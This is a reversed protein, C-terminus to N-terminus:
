PVSYKSLGSASSGGLQKNLQTLNNNVDQIGKNINQVQQLNKNISKIQNNLGDVNKSARDLRTYGYWLGGVLVALLLVGITLVTAMYIQYIRSSSEVAM